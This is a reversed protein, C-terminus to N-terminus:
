YIVVASVVLCMRGLKEAERQAKQAIELQRKREAEEKKKNWALIPQSANSVLVNIKADYEKKWNDAAKCCDWFPSKEKKHVDSVTKSLLKLAKVHDTLSSAEEDSEITEPLEVSSFRNLSAPIDSYSALRDQLIEMESPPNNHGLQAQM